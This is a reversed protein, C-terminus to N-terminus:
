SIRLRVTQGSGADGVHVVTRGMVDLYPRALNFAEVTGGAMISLNGEIAGIEGGSVPADLVHIGLSHGERAVRTAVDPRITSMDIFLLGRRASAFVGDSAFVVLEVDASDPLMTIIVDSVQVLEGISDAVRVGDAAREKVKEPNRSYGVVGYGARALNAAMPAGMVGFGIVGVTSILHQKSPTASYDTM